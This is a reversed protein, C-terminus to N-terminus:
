EEKVILLGNAVAREQGGYDYPWNRVAFSASAENEKSRIVFTSSGGGDLNIADKVGLAKMVNSMDSFTMGNSNWFNRGDVVMLYVINDATVGVCTRPELQTNTQAEIQGNRLLRHRGGVAELINNKMKDFEDHSGIVAQKDKTIAFFTSKEDAMTTKLAKGKRYFIGGPTGGGAFFDGNVAGLVHEVSSEYAKAQLTMPQVGFQSGNDPSSAVITVGNTELAVEFIYLKTALGTESLCQMECAQVGSSLTYATDKFFHGVFGSNEAIKRGIETKAGENSYATKEDDDSCSTWCLLVVLTYVMYLIREKM